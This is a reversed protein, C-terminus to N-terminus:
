EEGKKGRVKIEFEMSQLVAGLTGIDVVDDAEWHDKTIFGKGELFNKGSEKWNPISVDFAEKLGSAIAEAAKQRFESTKLLAEEEPNSHFGIELLLAPAETRRIVSYYDQGNDLLRTRIGRDHLGLTDVLHSQIIGGVRKAEENNNTYYTEIGKANVPGANTHISIFLDAGWENSIASREHLEVTKDKERTLKVEFYPEILPKLRLSIDLVGDAEVYGTPGRNARDNGGHGPDIVIKM